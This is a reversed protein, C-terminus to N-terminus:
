EGTHAETDPEGEVQPVPADRAYGEVSALLEPAISREITANSGLIHEWMSPITPGTLLKPLSQTRDKAVVKKTKIFQISRVVDEDPNAIDNAQMFGVIDLFGPVQGRLQGPLDPVRKVYGLQEDREERMLTTIICHCPLDKLYRVIEKVRAGSKGWERPSPVYIDTTEPKKNFQELMVEHMDVQQLETLSDVIITNYYKRHSHLRDAVDQLQKMSRVQVVDVAPKSHLTTTGGEVDIILVPSTRADDDATGCFFTKGVGAEGYILIKLYEIGQPSKVGLAARLSEAQSQESESV